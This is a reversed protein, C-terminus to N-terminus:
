ALKFFTTWLGSSYNGTTKNRPFCRRPWGLWLENLQFTCHTCSARFLLPYEYWVRHCIWVLDRVNIRDICNTIGLVALMVLIIFLTSFTCLVLSYANVKKGRRTTNLVQFELNRLRLFTSETSSANRSSLTKEWGRLLHIDIHAELSEIRAQGRSGGRRLHFPSDRRDVIEIRADRDGYCGGRDIHLMRRNMFLCGPPWTRRRDSPSGESGGMELNPQQAVVKVM